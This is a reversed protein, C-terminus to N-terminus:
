AAFQATGKCVEGSASNVARGTITDTGANNGTVQRVTFSGSAGQTVRNGQFFTNGDHTLRVHWTQGVHNSDVEFEVEIRGNEPSLKLKWDSSGSCAGRKIVDGDKAMAAPAVGLLGVIAAVAITSKLGKRM